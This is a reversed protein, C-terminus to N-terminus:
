MRVMAKAMTGLAMSVARATDERARLRGSMGRRMLKVLWTRLMRRPVSRLAVRGWFFPACVGGECTLGAKGEEAVGKGEEDPEGVVGIAGDEAGWMERGALADAGGSFGQVSDPPGGPSADEFREEALEGGDEDGLTDTRHAQEVAGGPEDEVIQTPVEDHRRRMREFSGHESMNSVIPALQTGM